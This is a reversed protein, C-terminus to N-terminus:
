MLMGGNLNLVQGTVYDAEDGLLWRVASTVNKPEGLRSIPIQDVIKEKMEAPVDRIMGTDFYGLALANVTIGSGALERALTKTMGLLGAKSASYAITGVAGTQGVISSLNIIRGWANKRMIPILARSLLFPATLNVSLTEDWDEDTTKWSMASRSIGANNILVDVKHHVSLISTIMGEIALRDSLDVQFTHNSEMELDDIENKNRHLLVKHGEALLSRAIEKGMGGSAGTILVTKKEM